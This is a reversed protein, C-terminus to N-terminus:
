AGGYLEQEQKNAPRASIIRIVEGGSEDRYCHCVMLMKLKKSMGVVIYRDEDLSHDDDSILTANPDLFVTAAEKFPIGHKRINNLNKSKNWNFSRDQLVFDEDM